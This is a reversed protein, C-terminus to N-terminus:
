VTNLWVITILSVGLLFLLPNGQNKKPIIDRSVIYLLTGIIFSFLYTEVVSNVNLNLSTLAGLLPASSLVFKNFKTKEKKDIYELSFSSAITQIFLPILILFRFDSDLNLASILVFGIMFHDVFFGIQHLYKLEHYFNKKIKSHQYLFKELVHFFTFGLLLLLFVYKTEGERIIEPLLILFILAILSGAGFSLIKFRNKQFFDLISLKHSFYNLVSLSLALLITGQNLFDM